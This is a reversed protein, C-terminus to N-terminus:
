DFRNPQAHSSDKLTPQLRILCHFLDDPTFTYPFFTQLRKVGSAERSEIWGELITRSQQQFTKRRSLQFFRKSPKSEPM